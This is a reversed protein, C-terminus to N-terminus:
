EFRLGTRITTRFAGVWVRDAHDLRRPVYEFWARRTIGDRSGFDYQVTVLAPRPDSRLVALALADPRAWRGWRQAQARADNVPGEYPGLGDGPGLIRFQNDQDKVEVQITVEGSGPCWLTQGGFPPVCAWYLQAFIATAGLLGMLLMLLCAFITRISM